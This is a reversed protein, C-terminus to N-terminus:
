NWLFTLNKWKNPNKRKTLRWMQECIRTCIRFRWKKINLTHTPLLTFILYYLWLVAAAQTETLLSHFSNLGYVATRNHIHVKTYMFYSTSIGELRIWWRVMVFIVVFVFLISLSLTWFCFKASELSTNNSMKM